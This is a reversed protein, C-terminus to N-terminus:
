VLMVMMVRVNLTAEVTNKNSKLLRKPKAVEDAALVKVCPKVAIKECNMSKMATKIKAM